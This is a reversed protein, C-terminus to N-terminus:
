YGATWGVECLLVPRIGRSGRGRGYGGAPGRRGRHVDCCAPAVQSGPHSCLRSPPHSCRKFFTSILSFLAPHSCQKFLIFVALGSPVKMAHTSLHTRTGSSPDSRAKQPPLFGTLIFQSSPPLPDLFTNCCVCLPDLFTTCCVCSIQLSRPEPWSQTTM